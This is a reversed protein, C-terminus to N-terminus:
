QSLKQLCQPDAKLFMDFVKSSDRDNVKSITFSTAAIVVDAKSCRREASAFGRENVVKKLESSTPSPRTAEELPTPEM